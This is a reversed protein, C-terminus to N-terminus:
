LVLASIEVVLALKDANRVAMARYQASSPVQGGVKAFKYLGAGDPATYILAIGESVTVVGPVGSLVSVIPMHGGVPGLPQYKHVSIPTTEVLWNPGIMEKGNAGRMQRGLWARADQERHWGYYIHLGYFHPALLFLPLVMAWWRRHNKKLRKETRADHGCEPCTLAGAVWNGEMRYWCKPCRLRGKSRDGWLGFYLLGVAGLFLVAAITCFLWLSM